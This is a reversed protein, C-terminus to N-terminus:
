IDASFFMASNYEQEGFIWALSQSGACSYCKRQKLSVMGTSRFRIQQDLFIYYTKVWLFHTVFDSEENQESICRSESSLWLASFCCVTWGSISAFVWGNDEFVTQRFTFLKRFLKSRRLLIDGSDMQREWLQVPRKQPLMAYVTILLCIGLLIDMM